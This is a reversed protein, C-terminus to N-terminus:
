ALVRAADRLVAAARELRAAEILLASATPREGNTHAVPKTTQGGRKCNPTHDGGPHGQARHCYNCRKVDKAPKARTPCGRATHGTQQCASCTWTAGPKDTPM